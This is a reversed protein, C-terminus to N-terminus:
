FMVCANHQQIQDHYCRATPLFMRWNSSFSYSRISILDYYPHQYCRFHYYLIESVSIISESYYIVHQIRSLCSPPEPDYRDVSILNWPSQMGYQGAYGTSPVRGQNINSQKFQVRKAYGKCLAHNPEKQVNEGLGDSLTTM